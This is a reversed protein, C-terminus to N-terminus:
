CCCRPLRAPLIAPEMTSGDYNPIFDVTGQDLEALLVEAFKTLRKGTDCRRRTTATGRASTARATSSRIVCRSTRSLRVLADYVSADGHPHFKGLVDGVVRASKKRPTGVPRGHGVDRLPHPGPGAEARRGRTAARIRSRPSRTSSISRRPMGASRCATASSARSRRSIPRCGAPAAGPPRAEAGESGEGGAKGGSGRRVTSSIRRTAWRTAKVLWRVPLEAGEDLNRAPHDPFIPM